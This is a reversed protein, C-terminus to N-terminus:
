KMQFVGLQVLDFDPWVVLLWVTNVIVLWHRPSGWGQIM